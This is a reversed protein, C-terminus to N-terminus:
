AGPSSDALEASGGIAQELGICGAAVQGLALRSRSLCIVWFLASPM